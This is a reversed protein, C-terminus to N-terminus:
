EFLGERRREAISLQMDNGNVLMCIRLSLDAGRTLNEAFALRADFRNRQNALQM